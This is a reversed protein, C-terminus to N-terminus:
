RRLVFWWWPLIHALPLLVSLPTPAAFPCLSEESDRDKPSSLFTRFDSSPSLHLREWCVMWQVPCKSHTSKIACLNHRLFDMLSLFLLFCCCPRVGCQECLLLRSLCCPPQLLYCLVASPTARSRDLLDGSEMVVPCREFMARELAVREGEM